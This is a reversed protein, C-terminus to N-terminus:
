ACAATRMAACAGRWGARQAPQAHAAGARGHHQGRHADVYAVMTVGLVSYYLVLLLLVVVELLITTAYVTYSYGPKSDAECEALVAHQPKM